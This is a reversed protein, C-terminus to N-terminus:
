DIAEYVIVMQRVKPNLRQMPAIESGFEKEGIVASRDKELASPTEGPSLRIFVRPSGTTLEDLKGRNWNVITGGLDWGFGMVTFPGGNM